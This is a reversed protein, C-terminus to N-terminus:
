KKEKCLIHTFPISQDVLSDRLLRPGLVSFELKKDREDIPFFQSTWGVAVNFIGSKWRQTFQLFYHVLM